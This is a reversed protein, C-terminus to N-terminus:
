DDTSDTKVGVIEGMKRGQNMTIVCKIRAASEIQRGDFRYTRIHCPTTTVPTSGTANQTCASANAVAGGRRVAFKGPPQPLPPTTGMNPNSNDIVMRM